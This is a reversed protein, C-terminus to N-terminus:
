PRRTGMFRCNELMLVSLNSIMCVEEGVVACVAGDANETNESVWHQLLIVLLVSFVLIIRVKFLPNDFPSTKSTM